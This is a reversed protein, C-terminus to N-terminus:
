CAEMTSRRENTWYMNSRTGSSASEQSVSEDRIGVSLQFSKCSSIGSTSVLERVEDAAHLRFIGGSLVRASMSRIIAGPHENVINGAKM